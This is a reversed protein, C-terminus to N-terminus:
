IANGFHNAVSILKKKSFKHFYMNFPVKKM